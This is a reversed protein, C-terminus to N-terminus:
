GLETAIHTAQGGAQHGKLEAETRSITGSLKAPSAQVKRSGTPRGPKRKTAAPQVPEPLDPTEQNLPGTRKIEIRGPPSAESIQIGPPSIPGLRSSAPIRAKSSKESQINESLSVPGLRSTAPTREKPSIESQQIMPPSRPGIRSTAPIRERSSLLQQNIPSAVPTTALGLLIVTYLNRLNQNRRIPRSDGLLQLETGSTDTVRAIKAEILIQTQLPIGESGYTVKDITKMSVMDKKGGNKGRTIPTDPIAKGRIAITADAMWPKMTYTMIKGTRHGDYPDELEAFM